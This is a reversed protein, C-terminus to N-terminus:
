SLIEREASLTVQLQDMDLPKYIVADAGAERCQSKSHEAKQNLQVIIRANRNTHNKIGAFLDSLNGSLCTDSAIIVFDFADEKDLTEKAEELGSAAMVEIGWNDLVSKLALISRLDEDIILVKKGELSIPVGTNTAPSENAPKDQNPEKEVSKNTSSIAEPLYLTFCSGSGQESTVGIDGELLLALQRSITLGLGTGGYRRSTSGDAQTFAEFITKLKQENIGIGSDLVSIGVAWNKQRYKPKVEVRIIVEGNSSFKLANSMFNLLIQKIKEADSSITIDSEKNYALPLGKEEFQPNILSFVNEIVKNVAIEHVHLVCRGAEIRSLDLINDILVRLDNGANNIVQAQQIQELQLNNNSDKSLLRSLLLISNLPTRLEHSVNALFESKYSNSQELKLTHQHIDRTNAIHKIALEDLKEGLEKLEPPKKWSFQVPRNETLISSVGEILDKSLRSTRNAIWRAVIWVLALLVVVIIALRELMSRNFTNIASPDVSRGVWLPGHTETLFLPVWFMPHEGSAQWLSMRASKFIDKLGAFDQFANGTRYDSTKAYRGNDLVWTTNPFARALGSVDMRISVAGATSALINKNRDQQLNIMPGILQLTMFYRPDNEIASENVQIAGALIGGPHMKLASRLFKADTESVSDSVKIFKLTVPNRSLTLLSNSNNDFFQIEIIDLQDYLVHNLWSIYRSRQEELAETLSDTSESIKSVVGPEPLKALWRLSEKRTALHQDLDNFEARLNQLYATQYFSQMREYVMPVNLLLLALLPALGFIFLILQVQGRLNMTIM